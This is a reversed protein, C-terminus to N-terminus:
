LLLLLQDFCDLCSAEKGEEVDEKFNWAVKKFEACLNLKKERELNSKVIITNFFTTALDLHYTFTVAETGNPNQFFSHIMEDVTYFSGLDVIVVEFTKTVLINGGHLDTYIKGKSISYTLANIIQVILHKAKEYSLDGKEIWDLPKGEVLPLLVYQFLSGDESTASFFDLAKVINPHDLTKGILFEREPNCELPYNESTKLYSKLALREGQLNQVSFVKGFAGEGIKEIISYSNDPSHIQSEEASLSCFRLFYFCGIILHIFRM